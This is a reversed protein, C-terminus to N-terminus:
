VGRWASYNLNAQRLKQSFQELKSFSGRFEMFQVAGFQVVSFKVLNFQTERGASSKLLKEEKHIRM